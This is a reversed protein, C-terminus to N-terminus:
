PLRKRLAQERAANEARLQALPAIGAAAREQDSVAGERVALTCTPPTTRADCVPQTGYWQEPQRSLLWRDTTAAALWRLQADDPALTSGLTALAHALAYDDGTLGHQFITAAMRYDEASHLAGDRIMARVQERRQADHEAMAKAASKLAGPDTLTRVQGREAQDAEYLAALSTGPQSQAAAAGCALVGGALLLLARLRM